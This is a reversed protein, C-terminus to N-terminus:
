KILARLEANFVDGASQDAPNNIAAEYLRELRLWERHLEPWPAPCTALRMSNSRLEPVAKLLRYCRGFDDADRPYHPTELKNRTPFDKPAAVLWLRYRDSLISAMYLSSLGTDDSALWRTLGMDPTAPVSPREFEALINNAATIIANFQRTNVLRNGFAKAIHAVLTIQSPLPPQEPPQEIEPM